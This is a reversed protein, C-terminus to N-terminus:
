KAAEVSKVQITDGNLAGTIKVKQGPFKAAAAQDSLKYVKDGSLLAYKSGGKVCETVCKSDPSVGMMKHDKGCMDDTISGTFTKADDAANLLGMCLMAANLFIAATKM